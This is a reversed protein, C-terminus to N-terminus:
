LVQPVPPTHGVSAAAVVERGNSFALLRVTLLCWGHPVIPVDLSLNKSGHQKEEGQANALAARLM